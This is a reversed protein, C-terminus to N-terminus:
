IRAGDDYPDDHKRHRSHRELLGGAGILFCICSISALQSTFSSLIPAIFVGVMGAAVLSWFLVLSWSINKFEPNPPVFTDGFQDMTEDVDLWSSNTYDRPGKTSPMASHEIHRQFRQAQRSQAIQQFDEAHHQVFSDWQENFTPDNSSADHNDFSSPDNTNNFSTMTVVTVYDHILARTTPMIMIM